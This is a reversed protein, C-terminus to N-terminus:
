LKKKDASSPADTTIVTLEQLTEKNTSLSAIHTRLSGIPTPLPTNMTEKIGKGKERRRLEFEDGGSEEEWKNTNDLVMDADTEAKPSEKDSRPEIRTDPDDQSNFIDNMFEDVNVNENGELLHDLEKDELREQLMEVNQKAKFDKLSIQTASSMQIIEHLNTVDIEAAISKVETTVPNLSRPASPTRHTGQTSEISQSQTTPVKVRFVANYMMYHDTLKIDETLMWDPIKMGAGDKNKGSKFINKVLDDNEVLHYNDHVRRSINPHETMYYDIIIQIPPQDHGTVRTTLCRAFIKCLTQWPQPLGKSKFNSPNRQPLSFSLNQCFFQVMQGFTPADVFGGHNNDTAQPLQFIRKFDAVNLTLEKTGLSFMFPYRLRDEQLTHWFQYMYIWPISASGVISLRLPHTLLIYTLIKSKNPCQPNLLYFKKNANILDFHKNPPYLQDQPVDQQQQLQAM